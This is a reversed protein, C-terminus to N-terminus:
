AHIHTSIMEKTMALTVRLNEAYIQVVKRRACDIDLSIAQCPGHAGPM